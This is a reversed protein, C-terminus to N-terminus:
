NSLYITVKKCTSYRDIDPDLQFLKEPDRQEIVAYDSKCGEVIRIETDEDILYHEIMKTNKNLFSIQTNDSNLGYYSKRLLSIDTSNKSEKFLYDKLILIFVIFFIGKILMEIIENIM